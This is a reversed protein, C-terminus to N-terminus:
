EINADYAADVPREIITTLKQEQSMTRYIALEQIGAKRLRAEEELQSIEEQHEEFSKEGDVNRAAERKAEFAAIFGRQMEKMELHLKDEVDGRWGDSEYALECRRLEHIVDEEGNLPGFKIRKFLMKMDVHQNIFRWAEWCKHVFNYLCRLGFVNLVPEEPCKELLSAIALSATIAISERQDREHALVGIIKLLITAVEAGRLTPRAVETMDSKLDKSIQERTVVMPVKHFNYTILSIQKEVHKELEGISMNKNPSGTEETHMLAADEIYEANIETEEKLGIGKAPPKFFEVRAAHCQLFHLLALNLFINHNCGFPLKAFWDQSKDFLYFMLKTEVVPLIGTAHDGKVDMRSLAQFGYLQTLDDDPQDVLEHFITKFDREVFATHLREMRHIKPVNDDMWLSVFLFDGDRLNPVEPERVTAPSSEDAEPTPAVWRESKRGKPGKKLLPGDSFGSAQMAASDRLDVDPVKIAMPWALLPKQWKTEGSLSDEFYYCNSAPDLIKNYREAHYRRLVQRQIFGRVVAAIHTAAKHKKVLSEGFGRFKRVGQARSAYFVPYLQQMNALNFGERKEVNADPEMWASNTRDANSLDFITEGSWPNYLYFEGTEGSYRSEFTDIRVIDRMFQPIKKLKKAKRMYVRANGAKLRNPERWGGLVCNRIAAKNEVLEKNNGGFAGDDNENQQRKKKKKKVGRKGPSTSAEAEAAAAAAAETTLEEETKVPAPPPPTTEFFKDFARIARVQIKADEISGTMEIVETTWVALAELRAKITEEPVLDPRAIEHKDTSEPPFPSKIPFKESKDYIGIMELDYKYRVYDEFIREVTYPPFVNRAGEKITFVTEFGPLPHTGRNTIPDGRLVRVAMNLKVGPSEMQDLGSRTTSSEQDWAKEYVFM